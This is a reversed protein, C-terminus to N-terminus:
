QDWQNNIIEFMYSLGRNRQFHADRSFRQQQLSATAARQSTPYNSPTRNASFNEISDNFEDAPKNIKDHDYPTVQDSDWRFIKIEDTKIFKVKVYNEDSDQMMCQRWINKNDKCLIAQPVTVNFSQESQNSIQWLQDVLDRNYPILNDETTNIIENCKIFQITALGDQLELVTCARYRGSKAKFLRLDAENYKKLGQELEQELNQELNREAQGKDYNAEDDNAEDDIKGDSNELINEQKRNSNEPINNAADPKQQDDIIQQNHQQIEENQVIRNNNTTTQNTQMPTTTTTELKLDIDEDKRTPSSIIQKSM